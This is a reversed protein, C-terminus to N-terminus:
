CLFKEILDVLRDILEHKTGAEGARMLFGVLTDIFRVPSKVM